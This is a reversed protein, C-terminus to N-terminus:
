EVLRVLGPRNMSPGTYRMSWSSTDQVGATYVASWSGGKYNAPLNLIDPLFEDNKTLKGTYTYTGDTYKISQAGVDTDFKDVVIQTADKPVYGLQVTVTGSTNFNIPLRGSATIDTGNNPNFSQNSSRPPGARLNFGNESAGDTSKVNIRFANEEFARNRWRSDNISFAFNPPQVWKMDTTSDAGYSVNSILIDDSPDPTGNTYYLQYRTTTLRTKGSFPSDRYEDVRDTGNAETNNNKNYTDPDFIEVSVNNTGNKTRYDSPIKIHFDFGQALYKENDRGDNHKYTSYMDGNSHLAWPGFVALNMPGQAGYTGNGSINLNVPQEYLATATAGVRRSKFGLAAMFFLPEERSIKVQYWNLNGGAPYVIEFAVNSANINYGNAIAIERASAEASAATGSYALQVAGALAAADAARQAKARNHYLHGADIALGAAGLFVTLGLAVYVVVVGRRRRNQRFM